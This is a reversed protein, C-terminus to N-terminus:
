LCDLSTQVVDSQVPVDSTHHVPGSQSHRGHVDYFEVSSLGRIEEIHASAGTHVLNGRSEFNKVVM